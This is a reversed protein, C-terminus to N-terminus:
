YRPFKGLNVKVSDTVNFLPIIALIFTLQIWCNNSKSTAGLFSGKVLHKDQFLPLKSSSLSSGRSRGWYIYACFHMCVRMCACVCFAFAFQRAAMLVTM